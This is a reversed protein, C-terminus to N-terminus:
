REQALDRAESKKRAAEKCGYMSADARELLAKLTEQPRREALGISADLTLRLPGDRTPLTYDGCVWKRLREIQATAEPLGSDLVILFEDGGWRGILDTSRSASRLETAFQKLLDDGALHGHSDNVKKFGDVDIMAVCFATDAAIRDELMAEIWLRNRAGTLADRSAMEEAAELKVQYANVQKRLEEVAAKGEASMREISSRLEAASKHISVRIESLDDLTAIQSLQATVESMQGAYRRDRANVSEGARAMTLLLEKVEGAKDRYHRATRRGWAQLQDRVARETTEVAERSMAPSLGGGLIELQQRLGDGLGPCADLSYNGAAALASGYAALAAPLIGAPEAPKRDEKGPLEGDLYKKLSIM